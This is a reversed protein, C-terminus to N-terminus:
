GYMNFENNKMEKEFFIRSPEGCNFLKGDWLLIANAKLKIFAHARM